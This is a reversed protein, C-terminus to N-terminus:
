APQKLNDKGEIIKASIIEDGVELNRLFDQGETTYGFCSYRGDLLNRGAPTLESDYLLWFWQSSASDNEFESRAMGLAGTAQFPVSTAVGTKRGDEEPTLGYLPEKDGRVYVELPITRLKGGEKFGLGEGDDPKGTQVVFGDSRQIKMGDYFGRRVLDVFNGATVPANYGDLTLVFKAEKTQKGDKEFNKEGTGKAVVIEVKARGNLVPLKSAYEDPVKFPLGDGAMLQELRGIKSLVAEEQDLVATPAAAEAKTQAAKEAAIVKNISDLDGSLEGLIAKAESQKEQPISKLIPAGANKLLGEARSVQGEAQGWAFKATSGKAEEVQAQLERVEKGNKIPLSYRLLSEPDTNARAGSFSESAVAFAPPPNVVALPSGSLLFGSLLLGAALQKAREPAANREDAGRHSTRTPTAKPQARRQNEVQSLGDRLLSSPNASTARINRTPNALQSPKGLTTEDLGAHYPSSPSSNLVRDILVDVLSGRRPVQADAISRDASALEEAGGFSLPVVSALQIILFLDRTM